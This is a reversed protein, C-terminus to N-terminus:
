SFPNERDVDGAMASGPLTAGEGRNSETAGGGAFHLFHNPRHVEAYFERPGPSPALEYAASPSWGVGTFAMNWAGGAGAPTLFFGLFRDSLLLPARSTMSSPTYGAAASAAASATSITASADKAHARGWEHGPPTIRYAALSASGPTFSITVVAAPSATSSWDGGGKGDKGDGSSGAAASFMGALKAHQIVDGPALGGPLENPQTHIWGLPEYGVLSEHVPPASALQVGAHTGSQPVVVLARVEKVGPADPPSCGYMYAATQTRLDSSAILKRLLNQPLVYTYPTLSAAAATPKGDASTSSADGAVYLHHTRLHLNAASIARVRWDSRSAFVAQEYNSTTTVVLEDGHVNTSKTTTETLASGARAQKEVEAIAQRQQSPPAIEMGLIIDRVESQTLSDVNVNNKRGYDALIADKLAVEARIWEEDTLSPWLHHAETTTTPDPRLIAKARGPDIHLARLILILRSFATYSSITKLWDDYLNFLLMAPQTAKMITDGLREVKLAASFPLALESGKITINPFDLLHVELPDSLGRRTVIIQRPQEEVPLSRILAAVEEATKWKALQSLRKQGAWVSTHIVKLFLQGSRPNLIFIAGNVPKTVLNGEMTKHVTVRYVNSDDVFWIVANSFLEGYNASSLHPETPESSYLQLAKRIRERLVYMAPNAKMIKAMAAQLLPKLGPTWNGYGSYLNYALDLALLAGTPSPYISANDTTYDLFKARSYREIDHSDFDGWRLQVDIWFKTTTNSVGGPGTADFIDKSDHLLSPRSTPWKYSAFLLVDACSSNMKYSKRPHITEKQVSEIELADLEQDLVQCIDMVVSEHIKQWLHARFIQILSIKLTPLKGHM